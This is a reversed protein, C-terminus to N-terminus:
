TSTASACAVLARALRDGDVELGRVRRPWVGAHVDHHHLGALRVAEVLALRDLRVEQDRVAIAERNDVALLAWHALRVIEPFAARPHESVRFRCARSRNAGCLAGLTSDRPMPECCDALCPRM